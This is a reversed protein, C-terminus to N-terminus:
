KKIQINKKKKYEILLQDKEIIQLKYKDIINSNNSYTTLNPECSIQPQNLQPDNNKPSLNPNSITNLNPNTDFYYAIPPRNLPSPNNSFNFTNNM